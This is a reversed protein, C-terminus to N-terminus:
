RIQIICYDCIRVPELYESGPLVLTAKNDSCKNCYVDGCSRCHHRKQFPPQFKTQCKVCFPRDKDPIRAPLIEMALEQLEESESFFARPVHTQTRGNGLYHDVVNMAAQNSEPSKSREVGSSNSRLIEETRTPPPVVRSEYSSVSPNYPTPSPREWQTVRRNHDVYFTRGHQDVKEEWGPPLPTTM